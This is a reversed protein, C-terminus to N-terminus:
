RLCVAMMKGAYKDYLLKQALQRGRLCGDILEAETPPSTVASSRSATLRPATPTQDPLVDDAGFAFWTAASM